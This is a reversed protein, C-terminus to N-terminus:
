DRIEDEVKRLTKKCYLYDSGDVDFFEMKGTDFEVLIGPQYPHVESVWKVIGKQKKRIDEVNEGKKFSNNM